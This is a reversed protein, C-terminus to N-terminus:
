TLPGTAELSSYIKPRPGPTRPRFIGSLTDKHLLITFSNLYKALFDYCKFVICGKGPANNRPPPSSSLDRLTNKNILNQNVYKILIIKYVILSNFMFDKSFFIM